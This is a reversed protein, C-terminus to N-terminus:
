DGFLAALFDGVLSGGLRDVEGGSPYTPLSAAGAAREAREQVLRQREERRASM